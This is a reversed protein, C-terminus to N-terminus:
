QDAGRLWPCSTSRSETCGEHRGEQTDPLSGVEPSEEASLGFKNAAM